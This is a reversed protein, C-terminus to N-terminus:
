QQKQYNVFYYGDTREEISIIKNHYNCFMTNPSNYVSVVKNQTQDIIANYFTHHVDGKVSSTDAYNIFWKTHGADLPTFFLIYNMDKLYQAADVLLKGTLVDYIEKRNDVLCSSEENVFHFFTSMPIGTDNIFPTHYIAPNSSLRKLTRSDFASLIRGKYDPTTTNAIYIVGKYINQGFAPYEFNTEDEKWDLDLPMMAIPELTKDSCIMGVPIAEATQQITNTDGRKRIFRPVSIIMSVFLNSDNYRSVACTFVTKIGHEWQRLLGDKFSPSATDIGISIAATNLIGTNKNLDYIARTKGTNYNALLCKGDRFYLLAMSDDVVQFMPLQQFAFSSEDINVTSIPKLYTSGSKCGSFL